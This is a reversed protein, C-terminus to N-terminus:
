MEWVRSAGVRKMWSTKARSCPMRSSAGTTAARVPASPYLPADPHLLEVTGTVPGRVLFATGTRAARSRAGGRARRRLRRQRRRRRGVRHRCLRRQPTGRVQCRSRGPVRDRHCPGDGPLRYGRRRRWHVACRGPPRRPRRRGRGGRGLRDPGCGDWPCGGRGVLTADAMSPDLTGTVPGLFLLIAGYNPYGAGPVAILFDDNGDGDVDGGSSVSTGALGCCESTDAVFKADALSLDVTGTVPGLVLYAAGITEAGLPEYGPAGVLLNDHGDRDVDGADSVSRGAYDDSEEGVLKADAASLDVTGTVPGRVLYAAGARYGGEEDSEDGVLLDDHGDGDVDGAGSVSYRSWTGGYAEDVLTADALSLDLTGTVPGRVLYAADVDEGAAAGEPWAGLLLDAHGDGDVDGAGSVSYGAHDDTEKGVLTADAAMSLDVYITEDRELDNTTVMRTMM